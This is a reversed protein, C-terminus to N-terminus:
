IARTTTEGHRATHSGGYGGALSHRREEAALTEPDLPLTNPAIDRL